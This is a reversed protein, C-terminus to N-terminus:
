KVHQEKISQLLTKAKGSGLSKELTKIDKTFKERATEINKQNRQIEKDDDTLVLNRVSRAVAEVSRVMDFLVLLHPVRNNAVDDLGGYVRDIGTVGAIAVLVTVGVTVAYGLGLKRGIRVNELM